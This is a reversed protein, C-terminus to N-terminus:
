VAFGEDPAPFMLEIDSDDHDDASCKADVSVQQHVTRDSKLKMQSDIVM